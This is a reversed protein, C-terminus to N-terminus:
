KFLYFCSRFTHSLFHFSPSVLDLCQPQSSQPWSSLLLFHSQLPLWFCSIPYVLLLYLNKHIFYAVFICQVVCFIALLKYYSYTSYLRQLTCWWTTCLHCIIPKGLLVLPQSGAQWRLLCSICTWDQAPFIGQLLLHCSVGTNKGAPGWPSLDQCALTPCSQLSKACLCSIYCVVDVM